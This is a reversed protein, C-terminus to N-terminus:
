QELKVVLTNTEVAKVTYHTKLQLAKTMQGDGAPTVTVSHEGEQAGAVKRNGVITALTFSGDVGIQGFSGHQPNVANRFEIHGGGTYAQNDKRVVKGEVKFTAPPPAESNCGSFAALGFATL